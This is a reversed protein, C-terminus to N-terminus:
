SNYRMEVKQQIKRLILVLKTGRLLAASPLAASISISLGGASRRWLHASVELNWVSSFPFVEASFRSLDAVLPPAVSPLPPALLLWCRM